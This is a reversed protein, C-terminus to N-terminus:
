HCTVTNFRAAKLKRIWVLNFQAEAIQRAFEAVIQGGGGSEPTQKLTKASPHIPDL